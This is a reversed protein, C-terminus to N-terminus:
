RATVMAPTRSPPLVVTTMLERERRVQALLAQTELYRVNLARLRSVSEPSEVCLQEM